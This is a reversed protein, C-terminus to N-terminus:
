SSCLGARDAAERIAAADQYRDSRSIVASPHRVSVASFTHVDKDQQSTCDHVVQRESSIIAGFGPWESWCELGSAATALAKSAEGGLCVVVAPRLLHLELQLFAICKDMFVRSSRSRVSSVASDLLGIYTNTLFVSTPPIGELLVRLGRWTVKYEGTPDLALNAFADSSAPYTGLVLLDRGSASPLPRPDTQTGPWVDGWSQEVPLGSGLPFFQLDARWETVPSIGPPLHTAFNAAVSARLLEVPHQDQHELLNFDNM